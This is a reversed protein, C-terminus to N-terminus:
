IEFNNTDVIASHEVLIAAEAVERKKVITALRPPMTGAYWPTNPEGGTIPSTTLYLDQVLGADVLRTATM